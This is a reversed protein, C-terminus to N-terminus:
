QVKPGLRAKKNNLLDLKLRKGKQKLEKDKHDQIGTKTSLIVNVM